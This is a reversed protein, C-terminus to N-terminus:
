SNLKKGTGLGYRDGLSFQKCRPKKCLTWRLQFEEKCDKLMLEAAPFDGLDPWTEWFIM